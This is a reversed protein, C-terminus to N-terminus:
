GRLWDLELARSVRAILFSSRPLELPVDNGSRVLDDIEQQARLMVEPNNVMEAMVFETTDTSMKNNDIDEVAYKSIKFLTDMLLSNLHVMTFPNKSDSSSDKSELELLVELVDKTCSDEAKAMKRRRDIVDEFLDDLKKANVKMMKVIGRLGHFSPLVLLDTIGTVAASHFDAGLKAREEGKIAHKDVREDGNSVNSQDKFYQMTQQIEHKRLNCSADLTTSGLVERVCVDFDKLVQKAMSPSNAVIIIKSGLWLSVLPGYTKGLDTFYSHLEPDLFPLSGVVPLGMPGPPLPPHIKRRNSVFGWSVWTTFPLKSEGDNDMFEFLIRVFDKSDEGGRGGDIEDLKRRRDIVAEVIGNLKDACRTIRRVIGQLDFRGLIPFFDSVNPTGLLDTLDSVAARFGAEMEAKDGGKITDGWSMSMVVNMMTTFMQDGIDVVCGPREKLSQMTKKIEHKGLKDVRDLNDPSLMERVCVNIIKDVRGVRKILLSSWIDDGMYLYISAKRLMRWLPGYPSWAVDIGGYTAAEAAAPIDRNAFIVDYDKLIEKATSPSNAVVVVKNGLWLSILPGYTQALGAFYSHMEPDLFPLSGVVPLGLPGPPLPPHVRTRKSLFVLSGWVICFLTLIVYYIDSSM